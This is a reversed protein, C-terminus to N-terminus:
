KRIKELEGPLSAMYDRLEVLKEITSPSQEILKQMEKFKELLVITSKKAKKAIIGELEKATQRYKMALHEVVEKLYIRFM